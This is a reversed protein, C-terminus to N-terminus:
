DEVTRLGAAAPCGANSWDLRSAPLADFTLTSPRAADRNLLFGGPSPEPIWSARNASSLRLELRDGAWMRYVTTHAAWSVVKDAGPVGDFVGYPVLPGINLAAIDYIRRSTGDPHVEYLDPHLQYRASLSTLALRLRVDGVILTDEAFPETRYVATDVPTETVATGLTALNASGSAGNNLFLQPAATGPQDALREGDALYVAARAAGCALSTTGYGWTYPATASARNSPPAAWTVKPEADVGTDVDKLWYDWWRQVLSYYALRQPVPVNVHIAAPGVFLKNHPNPLLGHLRLIGSINWNPDQPNQVNLVPVTIQPAWRAPARQWFYDNTDGGNAVAQANLACQQAAWEPTTTTLLGAAIVLGACGPSTVGKRVQNANWSDYVGSPVITRLRPEQGAFAYTTFGGQSGGTAGVRDANVPENALVWSLVDQADGVDLPGGYDWGTTTARNPANPNVTTAPNTTVIGPYGRRLYSVVVYGRCAYAWQVEAPVVDNRPDNAFAAGGHLQMIVPWGGPPAPASPKDIWASRVEGDRVQIAAAERVVPYPGDVAPVGAMGCSTVGTAPVALLTVAL